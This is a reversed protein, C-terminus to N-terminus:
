GIKGEGPFLFHGDKKSGDPCDKTIYVKSDKSCHLLIKSASGEGSKCKVKAKTIAPNQAPPVQYIQSGPGSGGGGAKSRLTKHM